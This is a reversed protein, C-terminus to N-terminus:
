DSAVRMRRSTGPAQAPEPRSPPSTRGSRKSALTANTDVAPKPGVWQVPGNPDVVLSAGLNRALLLSRLFTRLSRPELSAWATWVLATLSHFNFSLRGRKILRRFVRPRGGAWLQQSGLSIFVRPDVKGTDKVSSRLLDDYPQHRGLRVTSRYMVDVAHELKLAESARTSTPSIRYQYLARPIVMVPAVESMRTILDQDEWYECERRYGGARDFVERRYMMSGHAFPVFPSRRVLRWRDSTRLKRGEADIFGCLCAVVGAEPYQEFVALEERLRDPNSIDDADMRAVFPATAAVAVKESSDAPGLNQKEEILRIRKDRSAWHRLRETSGDTSADDLIVFEFNGFTQGLISEVAADLYPAANYVPMVVSIEPSKVALM